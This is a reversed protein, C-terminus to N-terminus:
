QRAALEQLLAKARPDDVRSLHQIARRRLTRDEDSRAVAMLRDIAVREGSEAYRALLLERLEQDADAYLRVLEAATIGARSAASLAQRRVSQKEAMSRAVTLLWRANETGGMEAISTLVSQRTREGQLKPYIERLLAADRATAYERSLGRIAVALVPEPADARQVVSRLHERARPDGSRALADMAEKALWADDGAQRSLAILAPVGAGNELRALTALGQQRVAAHEAGDRAIGVMADAARRSSAPEGSVRALWSLASRRTDRPRDRDRAIALLGPAVDASDAISAPLIADRGPRGDLKSALSLLYEAADRTRVRGLDTVGAQPSPLPGVYTEVGIVSGDARELVVRIPGPECRDQATGEGGRTYSGIYTNSGISIFTRGNGCVSERAAFSFQVRGEPASAVRAALSQAAAPAASAVLAVTLVSLRM